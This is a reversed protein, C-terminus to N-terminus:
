AVGQSGIAAGADSMVQGYVPTDRASDTIKVEFFAVTIDSLAADTHMVGVRQTRLVRWVVKIGCGVKYGDARIAM